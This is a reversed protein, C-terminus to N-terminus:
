SCNVCPADDIIKGTRYPIADSFLVMVKDAKEDWDAKLSALAM